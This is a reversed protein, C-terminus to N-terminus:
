ATVASRDRWVVIAFLVMSVIVLAGGGIALAEGQGTVTMGIGIPFILNAAVTVWFHAAALRTMAAAPAVRYYLGFVAMTLWGLLNNHAHAPSYTFDQTGGMYMGYAMGALAFLTSLGIFYYSLNRM